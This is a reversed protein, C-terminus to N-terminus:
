GSKAASGVTEITSGFTRTLRVAMEPSIRTRGNVIAPSGVISVTQGPKPGRFQHAYLEVCKDKGPKFNSRFDKATLAPWWWGM